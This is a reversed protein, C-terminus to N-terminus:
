PKEAVFFISCGSDGEAEVLSGLLRERLWAANPHQDRVFFRALYSPGLAALGLGALALSLRWLLPSLARAAAADLRQGFFVRANLAAGLM